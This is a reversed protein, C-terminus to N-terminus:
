GPRLSLLRELDPAFLGGLQPRDALEPLQASFQDVGVVVRSAGLAVLVRALSPALVVVRPAEDPARGGQPAATSVDRECALAVLAAFGFLLRFGPRVRRDYSLSGNAEPM